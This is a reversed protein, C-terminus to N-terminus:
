YLQRYDVALKMVTMRKDTKIVKNQTVKKKKEMTMPNSEGWFINKGVMM